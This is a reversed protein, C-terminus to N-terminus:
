QQVSSIYGNIDKNQKHVYFTYQNDNITIAWVPFLWLRTSTISTVRDWEVFWKMGFRTYALMGHEYYPMKFVRWILISIIFPIMISSAAWTILHIQTSWPPAYNSIYIHYGAIFVMIIVLRWFFSFFPIRSIGKRTVM